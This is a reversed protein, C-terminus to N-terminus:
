LAKLQEYLTYLPDLGDLDFHEDCAYKLCKLQIETPKWRNQPRLSKLWNITDTIDICDSSFTTHGHIDRKASLGRILGHVFIEDEESWAPKENKLQKRAISFLLEASKKIREESVLNRDPLGDNLMTGLANIFEESVQEEQVEESWSSKQEGQKELWAIFKDRDPISETCFQIHKLIAKRIREDESEALEPFANKLDELRVIIHGQRKANDLLGQMKSLFDEFKEKYDM